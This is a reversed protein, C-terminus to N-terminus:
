HPRKTLPCKRGGRRTIRRYDEGLHWGEGHGAMETANSVANIKMKTYIFKDAKDLMMELEQIMLKKALRLKATAGEVADVTM